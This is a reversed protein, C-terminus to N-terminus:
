SKGSMWMFVIFAGYWIAIVAAMGIGIAVGVIFEM